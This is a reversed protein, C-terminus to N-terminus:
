AMHHPSFGMWIPPSVLVPFENISQAARQAITYCCNMDTNVPLHNAHQETSGVPIIVIANAKALEEFETRRM